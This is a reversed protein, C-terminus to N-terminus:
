KMQIRGIAYLQDGNEDEILYYYLGPVVSLNITTSFSFDAETEDITLDSQWIPQFKEYDEKKNSFLYAQFKKDTTGGNISKIIGSLPFTIKGNKIKIEADKKPSEIEMKFSNSRVPNDLLLELAPNPDFNAAMLKTPKNEDP